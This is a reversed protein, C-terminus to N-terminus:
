NQGQFQYSSSHLPPLAIVILWDKVSHGKSVGLVNSAMINFLFHFM